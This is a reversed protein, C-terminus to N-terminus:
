ANRSLEVFKGDAMTYLKIWTGVGLIMAATLSFNGANAITASNTASGGYITYTKGVTANDLNTIATAQSNAVTIFETAGTVSPTVDDATFATALTASTTRSLDIIDTAGRRFLTITDGKVPNWAATLKSFNGAKAITIANTSSGCM